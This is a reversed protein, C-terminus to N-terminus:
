SGKPVTCTATASSTNGAVDKATAVITYIRGTGSSSREARLFVNGGNIVIDGPVDSGNIGSDPENSSATVTLSAVGSLADDATVSAVQVLQHNPPSLICGPAPLGGITPATMDIKIAASKPQELNGALDGASYNLNTIGESTVAVSAPNGAVVNATYQAGTSSYNINQVGSGGSNDTATLTVSVINRNWGGAVPGPTVSAATVPATRDLRITVFKTPETNGSNDTAAYSLTTTGEATITVLAPNGATVPGSVQAGSLSYTINQIGTGGPNDTANLTVTVTTANWGAFGPPPTLTAATVPNTRDLTPAEYAGIDIVATGDGNGDLPRPTGSLDATPAPAGNTGADIAPSGGQLHFDGGGANLFLPDASINGNVGTQNTCNGGYLTGSSSFVDNTRFTPTNPDSNGCMVATQGAAAVIVNNLIQVQDHFGDTYVGSGQSGNNAYITNNILYSGRTGYPVLSYVGAGKPATNGVILNQVIAADSQNVIFFGGGEDYASNYSVVNNQITPTGAGYVSLGGGASSLWSNNSIDNNLIQASSSGLISVGGGGVGGSYGTIQGNNKIANGQVLPSGFNIGIGGGGNAASNNTICNSTITPSSSSISVGGGVIGNANKGNRITFGNLISLRGEGSAFTVVPGLGNGDIITVDCGQESTVTIAKGLFNLNEVYTGAAVQVTDGNAAADIAAQITPQDAPVHIISGAYLQDAVHLLLVPLVIHGIRYRFLRKM